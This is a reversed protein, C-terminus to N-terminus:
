GYLYLLNATVYVAAVSNAPRLRFLLSKYNKQLNFGLGSGDDGGPDGFNSKLVRNKRGGRRLDSRKASGIRLCAATSANDNVRPSGTDIAVVLQLLGAALGRFFYKVCEM